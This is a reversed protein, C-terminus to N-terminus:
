GAEDRLTLGRGDGFPVPPAYPAGPSSPGLATTQSSLYHIAIISLPSRMTSTLVYM